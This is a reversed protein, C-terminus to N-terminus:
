SQHRARSGPLLRLAPSQASASPRRSPKPCVRRMSWGRQRPLCYEPRPMCRRAVRAITMNAHRRPVTMTPDPTPSILRAASAPNNQTSDRSRLGPARPPLSLSMPIRLLQPRMRTSRPCWCNRSAHLCSLAVVSLARGHERPTERSFGIITHNSVARECTSRRQVSPLSETILCYGKITYTQCTSVGCNELETAKTCCTM